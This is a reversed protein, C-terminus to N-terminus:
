NGILLVLSSFISVRLRNNIAGIQICAFHTHTHTHTYELYKETYEIQMRNTVLRTLDIDNQQM